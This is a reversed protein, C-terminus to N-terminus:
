NEKKDNYYKFFDGVKLMLNLICLYILLAQTSPARGCEGEIGGRM